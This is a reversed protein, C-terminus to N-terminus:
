KRRLFHGDNFFLEYYLNASQVFSKYNVLPSKIWLWMPSLWLSWVALMLLATLRHSMLYLLDLKVTCSLLPFFLFFFFLRLYILLFHMILFSPAQVWKLGIKRHKRFDLCQTWRFNEPRKFCNFFFQVLKNLFTLAKFFVFLSIM